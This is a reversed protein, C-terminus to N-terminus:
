MSWTRSPMAWPMGMLSTSSITSSTRSTPSKTVSMSSLKTDTSISATAALPSRMWRMTQIAKRTSSTSTTAASNQAPSARFRSASTMRFAM